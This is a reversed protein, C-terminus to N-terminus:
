TVFRSELFWSRQVLGDASVMALSCGCVSFTYLFDIGSEEILVSVILLLVM